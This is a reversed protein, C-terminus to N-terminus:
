EPGKFGALFQEVRGAQFADELSVPVEPFSKTLEQAVQDPSLLGFRHQRDVRLELVGM